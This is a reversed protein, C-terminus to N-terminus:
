PLVVFPAISSLKGGATAVQITGSRAGAPVATAIETPSVLVFAAPTGEFTVATVGALNTGLIKVTSAVKGAAPLARVFPGLGTSLRFITGAYFSNGLTTGYFSGDTGQVVAAVPYAGYTFDFSHLTTLAGAATIQFVTGYCPLTLCDQSAGGGSTTGYFNHDSGEILGGQPTEGDTVAFDYLTRFAGAPTIEFVNGWGFAGGEAATGYLTGGTAQMLVNAYDGDTLDFTHITTLAGTLSVQYLTGYDTSGGQETPGYLDGNRAQILGAVLGAGNLGNFSRLTTLSAGPAIKFIAGCGPFLSIEVCNTSTGGALTTGYFTGSPGEVLAGRPNAGHTVDFNYVTTFEGAPTIRFVTGCGLVGVGVNCPAATNGGVSTTGYFSGDTALLLGALPYAGDTSEFSHLVTLVGEPTVRFVTGCGEPDFVDLNCNVSSGGYETTGYFNGDLGQVLSGAPNAGNAGAFVLLNTFTQAPLHVITAAGLLLQAGAQGWYGPKRM